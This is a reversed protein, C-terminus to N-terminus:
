PASTSLLPEDGTECGCTHCYGVWEDDNSGLVDGECNPCKKREAGFTGDCMICHITTSASDLYATGCGPKDLGAYRTDGAYVCQHCLYRRTAKTHHFQRKFEGKTLLEVDIPWEQLVVMHTSTYKNDHMWALRTRGAFELRDSLWRRDPWITAYLSVAQRLVKDPDLSVGAEGLHTVRNRLSRMDAYMGVFEDSVPQDTLTNVGGPLDIADLTRLESFDVNKPSASLKM